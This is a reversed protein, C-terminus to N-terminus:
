GAGALSLQTDLARRAGIITERENEAARNRGDTRENHTGEGRRQGARPLHLGTGGKACARM